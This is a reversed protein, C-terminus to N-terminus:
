DVPIYDCLLSWAEARLHPVDICTYALGILKRKPVGSWVAEKLKELDIHSKSM